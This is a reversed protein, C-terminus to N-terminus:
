ETNVRWKGMGAPVILNRKKMRHLITRFTNERLNGVILRADDYLKGTRKPRSAETLSQLVSSEVLVRNVSNKRTVDTRKILENQQRAKLLMRRLTERELELLRIKREVEAIEEHLRAELLTAVESNRLDTM